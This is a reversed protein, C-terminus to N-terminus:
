SEMHWHHKSAFNELSDTEISFSTKDSKEGKGDMYNSVVEGAGGYAEM